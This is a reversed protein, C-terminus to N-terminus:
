EGERLKEGHLEVDRALIRALAQTSNDYRLTEEVWASVLAPAAEARRRAEPNRWLWYLANGLLKTTTENGAVIMLFLFGIIERDSLRDGDIEARLLAGTLDDRPRERRDALMATFYQLM